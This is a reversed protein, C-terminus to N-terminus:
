IKIKNNKIFSELSTAITDAAYQDTYKWYIKLVEEPIIQKADQKVFKDIREVNDEIYKEGEYINISNPYNSLIKASLSDKNKCINVIKKGQFIYDLVKSPMQNSISNDVNVLIDALKVYRDAESKGVYGYHLLRKKLVGKYSDIIKECGNGVIHLSYNQPLRCFLELLYKPNRINKYFKGAFLCIINKSLSIRKCEIVQKGIDKVIIGPLNVEVMKSSEEVIKQGIMDEKVFDPLFLIDLGKITKREIYRRWVKTFRSLTYNNTYPDLQYLAKVAGIDSQSVAEAIYYPASVGIVVDINNYNCIQLIEKTFERKSFVAGLFIIDIGKFFIGLHKLMWISQRLRSSREDVELKFNPFLEIDDSRLLYTHEFEKSIKDSVSRKCDSKSLVSIEYGRNRLQRTLTRVINVNAGCLSSLSDVVFLIKM